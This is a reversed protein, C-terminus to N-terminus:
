RGDLADFLAAAIIGIAAWNFNGDISLKISLYGCFLNGVTFLTPLVFLGRALGKRRPLTGTEASDNLDM